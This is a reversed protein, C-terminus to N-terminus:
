RAHRRFAEARRVLARRAGCRRQCAHRHRAALRLTRHIAHHNRGKTTICDPRDSYPLARRKATRGFPVCSLGKYGENQFIAYDRNESGGADRAAAALAKNHERMEQRIALRKQDESLAEYNEMLERARTKVAFYTQALAVAHKRPDGNMAILYCAYRSLHFDQLERTGGNPMPSTKAAGVFHLSAKNGGAECAEKAKDIIGQFKRRETYELIPQLERATWYERGQEDLHKISEFLAESMKEIDTM